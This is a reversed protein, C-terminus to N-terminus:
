ASERTVLNPKLQLVSRNKEEGTVLRMLKHVANRGLEHLDYSVTTLTPSVLSAMEIDDFGIVAM